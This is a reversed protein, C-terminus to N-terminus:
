IIIGRLLWGTIGGLIISGIICLRLVTNEGLRVSMREGIHWGFWAGVAAWVLLGPIWSM